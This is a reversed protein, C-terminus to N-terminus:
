AGGAEINPLVVVEDNEKLVAGVTESAHLNRGERSLRAAYSLPRGDPDQMPLDMAKRLGEILEGVTASPDALADRIVVQGTADQCQLTVFGEEGM